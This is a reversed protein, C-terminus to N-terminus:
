YGDIGIGRPCRFGRRDASLPHDIITPALTPLNLSVDAGALKEKRPGENPPKM